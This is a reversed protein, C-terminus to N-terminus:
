VWLLLQQTRLLRRPVVEVLRCAAEQVLAYFRVRASGLHEGFFTYRLLLWLLLLQTRRVQCHGRYVLLLQHAAGGVLRVVDELEDM